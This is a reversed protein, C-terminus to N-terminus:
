KLKAIFDESCEHNCIRALPPKSFEAEVKM